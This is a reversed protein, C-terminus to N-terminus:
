KQPQTLQTCNPEFQNCLWHTFAEAQNSLPRERRHVLYLNRHAPIPQSALPVLQEANVVQALVLQDFLAIGLDQKVADLAMQTQDFHLTRLDIPDLSMRDYFQHWEPHLIDHILTCGSYDGDIIAPHQALYNESCVPTLELRALEICSLEPVPEAMYRVALEPGDETLDAPLRSALSRLSIDPHRNLFDPLRPSLWLLSFLPPLAIKLPASPSYQKMSHSVGILEQLLPEIRKYYANGYATLSISRTGRKFLKVGFWAELVKIQQSVAGPTVALQEAADKFSLHRAAACFYQIAKLPPTNM